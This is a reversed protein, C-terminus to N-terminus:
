SNTVGSAISSFSLRVRKIASRIHNGFEHLFSDVPYLPVKRYLCISDIGILRQTLFISVQSVLSVCDDDSTIAVKANSVQECYLHKLFYKFM